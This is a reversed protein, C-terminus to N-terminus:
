DDNPLTIYFTTGKGKESEVSLGGGHAKMIDLCYPLGLGTGKEGATGETTTRVEHKFINDLIFHDMGVGNDRVAIRGPKSEPNSIEVECGSSCFKVSNSILNGIVEGFLTRDANIFMEEPLTNKLLIGKKEALYNVNEMLDEVFNRASFREKEPTIKGTKLRSIDLLQDVLTVMMDTTNIVRNIIEEGGDGNQNLRRKLLRLLGQISGLPSRLDHSVLSVFQDKLETAAEAQNKASKLSEEAKKLLTIERRTVLLVPEDKLMIKVGSVLAWQEAGGASTHLAEFDGVYGRKELKKYFREKEEENAWIDPEPKGNAENANIAYWEASTLNLYKVNKNQDLIMISLPISEMITSFQKESEKLQELIVHSESNDRAFAAIYESKGDMIFKLSVEVPFTSGDKRKHIGPLIQDNISKIYRVHDAWDLDRSFRMEVDTVNMSRLEERTYGLDRCAKQNVDELKGSAANIIFVAEGAQDILKQSFAEGEAASETAAMGRAFGRAMYVMLGFLAVTGSAILYEDTSHVTVLRTIIPALAALSFLLYEKTLLPHKMVTQVCLALLLLVLFLQGPIDGSPLLFYAGAGWVAGRLLMILIFLRRWISIGEGLRGLRGLKRATVMRGASIIAMAALWIIVNRSDVQWFMAGVATAVMLDSFVDLGSIHLSNYYQSGALSNSKSRMLAM